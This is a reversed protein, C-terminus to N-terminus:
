RTSPPSHKQKSALIANTAASLNVDLITKNSPTLNTNGLLSILVSLNKDQALKKQQIKNLSPNGAIAIRIEEENSNVHKALLKQPCNPHRFLQSIQYAAFSFLISPAAQEADPYAIKTVSIVPEDGDHIAM